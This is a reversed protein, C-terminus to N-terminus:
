PASRKRDVSGVAEIQLRGAEVRHSLSLGAEARLRILGLRSGEREGSAAVLDDYLAVPEAAYAIRELLQTAESLHDHSTANRSRIRVTPTGSELALSFDFSADGDVSYKALNELLEQAAMVLAASRDTPELYAACLEAIVQRSCSVLAPRGAFGAVLSFSTGWSADPPTAM